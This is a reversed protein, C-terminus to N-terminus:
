IVWFHMFIFSCHSEITHAVTKVVIYKGFYNISSKQIVSPSSIATYFLYRSHTCLQLRYIQSELHWFKLHFYFYLLTCFSIYQYLGCYQLAPADSSPITFVLTSYTKCKCLLSFICIVVHYELWKWERREGFYMVCLQLINVRGVWRKSFFSVFNKESSQSKCDVGGNFFIWVGMIPLRAFLLCLFLTANINYM